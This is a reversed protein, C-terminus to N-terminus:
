RNYIGRVTRSITSPNVDYMAALEAQTMSSRAYMGRIEKVDRASLKSYNGSKLRRNEARLRRIEDTIELVSKFLQDVTKNLDSM